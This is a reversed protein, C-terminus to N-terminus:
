TPTHPANPTIVTVFRSHFEEEKVDVFAIQHATLQINDEPLAWINRSALESRSLPFANYLIQRFLNNGFFDAAGTTAVRYQDGALLDEAMEQDFNEMDYDWVKDDGVYHKLVEARVRKAVESRFNRAADKAMNHTHTFKTLDQKADVINGKGLCQVACEDYVSSSFYFGEELMCKHMYAVAMDRVSNKETKDKFGGGCQQEHVMVRQQLADHVDTMKELCRKQYDVLQQMQFYKIKKPTPLDHFWTDAPDFIRLGSAPEDQRNQSSSGPAGGVGSASDAVATSPGQLWAPTRTPGLYLPLHERNHHLYSHNIVYPNSVLEM